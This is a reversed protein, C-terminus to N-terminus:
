EPLKRMNELFGQLEQISKLFAKQLDTLDALPCKSRSLAEEMTDGSIRRRFYEEHRKDCNIMSNKRLNIMANVLLVFCYNSPDSGDAQNRSGYSWLYIFITTLGGMFIAIVPVYGPFGPNFALALFTYFVPLLRLSPNSWSGIWYGMAFAAALSLVCLLTVLVVLMAANWLRWGKTAIFIGTLQGSLSPSQVKIVRTCRAPLPM